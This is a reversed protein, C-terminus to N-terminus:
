DAAYCVAGLVESWDEILVDTPLPYPTIDITNLVAKQALIDINCDLFSYPDLSDYSSLSYASVFFTGNRENISLTSEWKHRGFARNESHLILTGGKNFELWPVMGWYPGTIAAYPAYVLPEEDFPGRFIYLAAYEDERVLVAKYNGATNWSPGVASIVNKLDIPAVPDPFGITPLLALYFVISKM